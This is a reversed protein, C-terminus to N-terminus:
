CYAYCLKKSNKLKFRDIIYNSANENTCIEILEYLNNLIGRYDNQNKDSIAIFDGKRKIAAIDNQALLECHGKTVESGIFPSNNNVIFEFYFEKTEESDKKKAKEKEKPLM